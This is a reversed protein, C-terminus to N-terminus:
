NTTWGKAEEVTSGNNKVQTGEADVKLNTGDFDTGVEENIEVGRFIPETMEGPKLPDKYYLHDEDGDKFDWKENRGDLAVSSGGAYHSIEGDKILQVSVRVWAEEDGTNKVRAIRSVDDGPIITVEGTAPVEEGDVEEFIVLDVKLNSSKITNKSIDSTMSFFAAVGCALALAGILAATITIKRKGKKTPTKM